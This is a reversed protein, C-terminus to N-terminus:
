ASLDHGGDGRQWDRQRHRQRDILRARRARRARAAAHEGECVRVILATVRTTTHIPHEFTRWRRTACLRVRFMQFERERRVQMRQAFKSKPPTPSAAAAGGAMVLSSSSSPQARAYTSHSESATSDASSRATLNGGADSRSQARQSASLTKAREIASEAASFSHIRADCM